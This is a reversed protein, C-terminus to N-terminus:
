HSGRGYNLILRYAKALARSGTNEEEESMAQLKAENRELLKLLAKTQRPSLQIPDSLIEEPEREPEGIALRTMPEGVVIVQEKLTDDSRLQDLVHLAQTATLRVVRQAENEWVILGRKVWKDRQRPSTWDPYDTAKHRSRTNIQAGWSVQCANSDEHM